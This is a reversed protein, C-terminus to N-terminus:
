AELGEFILTANRDKWESRDFNQAEPSGVIAKFPFHQGSQKFRCLRRVPIKVTLNEEIHKDLNHPHRLQTKGGESQNHKPKTISIDAM